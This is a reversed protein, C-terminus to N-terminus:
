SLKKPLQYSKQVSMEGLTQTNQQSSRGHSGTKLRELTKDAITGVGGCLRKPATGGGEGRELRETLM